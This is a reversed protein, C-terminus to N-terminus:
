IANSHCCERSPRIFQPTKILTVHNPVNQQRVSSLGREQPQEVRRPQGLAAGQVNGASDEAEEALMRGTMM